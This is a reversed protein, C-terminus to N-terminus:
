IKNIKKITKSIDGKYFMNLYTAKASPHYRNISAIDFPDPHKPSDFLASIVSETSANKWDKSEWLQHTM